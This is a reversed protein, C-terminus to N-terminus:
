GNGGGGVVESRAIHRERDKNRRHGIFLVVVAAEVVEIYGLRSQYAGCSGTESVCYTGRGLLYVLICLM